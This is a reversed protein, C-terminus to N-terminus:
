AKKGDSLAQRRAVMWRRCAHGACVMGLLALSWFFVHITAAGRKAVALGVAYFGGVALAPIGVVVLLWIPTRQQAGILALILAGVCLAALLLTIVIAAPIM